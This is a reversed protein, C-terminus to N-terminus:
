LGHFKRSAHYERTLPARGVTGAASGQCRRLVWREGSACAQDKEVAEAQLIGYVDQDDTAEDILRVHEQHARPGPVYQAADQREGREPEQRAEEFELGGLPEEVG